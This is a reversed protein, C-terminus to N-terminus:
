SNGSQICIIVSSLKRVTWQIDSTYGSVTNSLQAFNEACAVKPMGDFKM